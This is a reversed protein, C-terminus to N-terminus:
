NHMNALVKAQVAYFHNASLNVQPRGYPDTCNLPPIYTVAENANIKELNDISLTISFLWLLTWKVKMKNKM